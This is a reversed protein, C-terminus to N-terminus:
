IICKLKFFTFFDVKRYLNVKESILAKADMKEVDDITTYEMEEPLTSTEMKILIRLCDRHITFTNKLRLSYSYLQNDLNRWKSIQFWM